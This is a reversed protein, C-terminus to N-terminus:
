DVHEISAVPQSRRAEHRSVARAAEAIATPTLGAQQRLRGQSAQEFVRDPVGLTHVPVTIQHAAFLELVGSGFGGARASEEVTVIAQCRNALDLILSEDLPKIFRAN